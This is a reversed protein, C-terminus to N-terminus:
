GNEMLDCIGFKIMTEHVKRMNLFFDLNLFEQPPNTSIKRLYWNGENLFSDVTIGAM